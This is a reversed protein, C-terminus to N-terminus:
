GVWRKDVCLVPPADASIALSKPVDIIRQNTSGRFRLNLSRKELIFPGDILIDLYELLGKQEKTGKQMLEEWTFGTYCAVEYGLMKLRIALATFAEAQFMPDGGSFTVGSCLPARRIMSLILEISYNMGVGFKHTQPNHCGPCNHSCGQCFVVFRLGPGDVISDNVFGSVNIITEM